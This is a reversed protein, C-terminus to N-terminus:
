GDHSGGGEPRGHQRGTPVTVPTGEGGGSAGSGRALLVAALRDHRRCLFWVM